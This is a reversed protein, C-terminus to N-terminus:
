TLLPAFLAVAMPLVAVTSVFATSPTAIPVLLKVEAAFLTARPGLDVAFTVFETAKPAPDVVVTCLPLEYIVFTAADVVFPTTETPEAM